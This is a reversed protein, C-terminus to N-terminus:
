GIFGCLTLMDKPFELVRLFSISFFYCLVWSSFRLLLRQHMQRYEIVHPRTLIRTLHRPCQRPRGVPLWGFCWCICRSCEQHTRPI